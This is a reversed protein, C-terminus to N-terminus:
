SPVGGKAPIRCSELYADLQQISYRVVNGLRYYEIKHEWRARDLQSATLGTYEMAQPKNLLGRSAPHESTSTADM